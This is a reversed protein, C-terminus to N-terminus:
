VAMRTRFWSEDRGLIQRRHVEIEPMMQEAYFSACIRREPRDSRGRQVLRLWAWGLATKYVLRLFPTAGALAVDRDVTTSSTLYAACGEALTLANRLEAALAPPVQNDALALDRDVMRAFLGFGGNLKRLVLDIAQIGTTGEYIPLIRADRYLREVGADRIYGHGGHTQIALDTVAVASEACGAKCVPLLFGALRQAQERTSASAGNQALDLQRATEYALVRGAETHARAMLLNRKIDPHEAISAVAHARKGQRRLSAYAFAAQTAASSIGVGQVAVELRMMNIMTFIAKLGDAPGGM